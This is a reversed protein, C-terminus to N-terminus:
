RNKSMPGGTPKAVHEVSQTQLLEVDGEDVWWGDPVKNDKDAPPQIYYRHCGYLAESRNTIVGSIGTVKAKAKAGLPFIFEVGAM